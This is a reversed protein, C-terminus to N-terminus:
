HTQAVFGGLGVRASFRGSVEQLQQLEEGTQHCTFVHITSSHLVRDYSDYTLDGGRGECDAWKSGRLKGLKWLTLRHQATGVGEALGRDVKSFGDSIQFDSLQGEAIGIRGM